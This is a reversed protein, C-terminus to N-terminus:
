TDFLGFALYKSLSKPFYDSRKSPYKFNGSNELYKEVEEYISLYFHQLANIETGEQNNFFWSEYGHTDRGMDVYAQKLHYSNNIGTIEEPLLQFTDHDYTYEGHIKKYGIFYSEIKELDESNYIFLYGPKFCVTKVEKFFDLCSHFIAGNITTKVEVFAIVSEAPVIVIDNIRYFPAYLTSDYVIIDCQRSTEGNQNRIFGQEVSISKPLHAKLFTRLIEETVIGITPNHKKIFEKVQGLQLLLEKSIFEFYNEM